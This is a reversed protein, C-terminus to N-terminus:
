GGLEKPVWLQLKYKYFWGAIIQEGDGAIKTRLWQSHQNAITALSLYGNDYALKAALNLIPQSFMFTLGSQYDGHAGYRGILTENMGSCYYMDEKNYTGLYICKDCDHYHLPTQTLTKM